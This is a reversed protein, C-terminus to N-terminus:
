HKVKRKNIVTTQSTAKLARGSGELSNVAVSREVGLLAVSKDFEACDASKFSESSDDPETPETPM